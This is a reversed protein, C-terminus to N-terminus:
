IQLIVRFAERSKVMRVAEHVEALPLVHSYYDGPNVDGSEILEFLDDFAAGAGYPWNLMHVSTHNKLELLDLQSNEKTLVGYVGVKGGPKLLQSAEKIIATSGVADIVLEFRREGVAGAVDSEASNITLDVNGLRAIRELRDDHHGVCGIWRAGRLRSFNALALGIPGDGYILIDMGEAVGLNAIGSYAECLALLMGGDTPDIQPPILKGLGVRKSHDIGLDNMAKHDQAVAYEIMGGWMRTYPSAPDVRGHPNTFTDGVKINRVKSGVEIVEGVGEHGLIVPYDIRMRSLHNDIIKLDTTCLGCARMKVLCEYDEVVPMPLDIVEIRGQEMAAVAKM